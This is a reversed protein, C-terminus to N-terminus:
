YDSKFTSALLGFLMLDVLEGAKKRRGHRLDGERQFGLKRLLRQAPYNDMETRISLKELHLQRFTFDIIVRVAETMIGQGQFREDLIFRLDAAPVSWDIRHISILGILQTSDKDWVAFSFEKQLLWAALKRRAFEEASGIDQISDIFGPIQERAARSNQQVLQYLAEGEGERFRRVVTRRSILATEIKFLNERM